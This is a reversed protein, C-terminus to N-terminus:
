ETEGEKGMGGSIIKSRREFLFKRLFIYMFICVNTKLTSWFHQEQSDPFTHLAFTKESVLCFITQQFIQLTHFTKQSHKPVM